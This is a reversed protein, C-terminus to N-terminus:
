AGKKDSDLPKELWTFGCNNCTRKIIELVKLTTIESTTTFINHIKFSGCKCCKRNKDYKQM